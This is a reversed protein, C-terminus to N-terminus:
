GLLRMSQGKQLMTVVFGLDKIKLALVHFINLLQILKGQMLGSAEIGARKIMLYYIKLISFPLMELQVLM